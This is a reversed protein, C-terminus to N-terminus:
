KGMIPFIVHSFTIAWFRRVMKLRMLSPNLGPAQRPAGALIGAMGAGGASAPSAIACPASPHVSRARVQMKRYKFTAEARKSRPFSSGPAAGQVSLLTRALITIEMVSRAGSSCSIRHGVYNGLGTDSGFGGGTNVGTGHIANMGLLVGVLERGLLHQIDIGYFADVAAGAHRHARNRGDEREVIQRFLPFLVG